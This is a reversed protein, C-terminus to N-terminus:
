LQLYCKIMFSILMRLFILEKIILNVIIFFNGYLTFNCYTVGEEILQPAKFIIFIFTFM